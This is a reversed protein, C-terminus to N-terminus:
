FITIGCLYLLTFLVLLELVKKHNSTRFIGFNSNQLVTFSSSSSFAKERRGARGAEETKLGGLRGWCHFLKGEKKLLM